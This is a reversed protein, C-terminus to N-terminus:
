FLVIETMDFSKRQHVLLLCLICFDQGHACCLGEPATRIASGEIELEHVSDSYWQM